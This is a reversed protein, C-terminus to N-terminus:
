NWAIQYLASLMQHASVFAVNKQLVVIKILPTKKGVGIKV